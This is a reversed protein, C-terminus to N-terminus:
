RFIETLKLSPIVGCRIIDKLVSRPGVAPLQDTDGVLIVRCSDPVANLFHHMLIIDVM